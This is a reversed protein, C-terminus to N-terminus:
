APSEGARTGPTTAPEIKVKESVRPSKMVGTAPRGAGLEDAVDDEGVDSVVQRERRGEGRDRDQDHDDVQEERTAKTRELM